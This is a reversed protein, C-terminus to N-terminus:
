GNNHEEYAQKTTIYSGSWDRRLAGMPRHYFVRNKKEEPKEDFYFYQPVILKIKEITRVIEDMDCSASARLLLDRYENPLM